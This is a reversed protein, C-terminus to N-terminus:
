DLLPLKILSIYLHFPTKLRVQINEVKFYIFLHDKVINYSVGLQKDLKIFVETAEETPLPTMTEGIHDFIESPSNWSRYVDGKMNM